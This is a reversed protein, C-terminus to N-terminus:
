SALSPARSPPAARRVFQWSPSIEPPAVVTEAQDCAAHQWSQTLVMALAFAVFPAPAEVSAIETEEVKYLGSEVTACGDDDEGCDNAPHGADAESPACPLFDLGSVLELGCHNSM